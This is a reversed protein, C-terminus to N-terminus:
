AYEYEYLFIPPIPVNMLFSEILRSQKEASWRRRRQYEPQLKYRGSDIIGPVEPLQTRGQETVIRIEGSVYRSTIAEESQAEVDESVEAALGLEEGPMLEQPKM